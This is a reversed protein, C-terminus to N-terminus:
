SLRTSNVRKWEYYISASGNNNVSVNDFGVSDTKTLFALYEKEM